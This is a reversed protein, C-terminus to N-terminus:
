KLDEHTGPSSVINISSVMDNTTEVFGTAAQTGSPTFAYILVEGKASNATRDPTGLYNTLQAITVGGFERKRDLAAMLAGFYNSRAPKERLKYEASYFDLLDQPGVAPRGSSIQGKAARDFFLKWPAIRGPDLSQLDAFLQKCDNTSLVVKGQNQLLLWNLARNRSVTAFVIIGAVTLLAVNATGIVIWISKRM